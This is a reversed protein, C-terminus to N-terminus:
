STKIEMKELFPKLSKWLKAIEIIGFDEGGKLSKIMKIIGEYTDKDLFVALLQLNDNVLIQPRTTLDLINTPFNGKYSGIVIKESITIIDVKM